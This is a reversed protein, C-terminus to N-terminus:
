GVPSPAPPSPAANEQPPASERASNDQAPSSGKEPTSVAPGSASDILDPNATASVNDMAAPVPASTVSGKMSAIDNEKTPPVKPPTTKVVEQFFPLDAFSLPESKMLAQVEEKANEASLVEYIAAVLTGNDRQEFVIVIPNDLSNVFRYNAGGSRSVAADNGQVAYSVPLSHNGRETEPLGADIVAYHLVTATKCIGGGLDPGWVYGGNGDAFISMGEKYGAEVSPLVYDYFRYEQGPQIIVYNSQQAAKWSNNGSPDDPNNFVQGKGLLRPYGWKFLIDNVAKFSYGKLGDADTYILLTPVAMDNQGCVAYDCGELSTPIPGTGRLYVLFPRKSRPILKYMDIIIDAQPCEGLVLVPRQKIDLKVSDMYLFQDQLKLTKYEEAVATRPKIEVNVQYNGATYATVAILAVALIFFKPWKSKRPTNEM